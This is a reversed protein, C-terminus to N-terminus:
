APDFRVLRRLNDPAARVIRMLLLVVLLAAIGLGLEV